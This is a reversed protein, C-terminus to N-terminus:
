YEVQEPFKWTQGFAKVFINGIEDILKRRKGVRNVNVYLPESDGQFRKLVGVPHSAFLEKFDREQHHTSGRLYHELKPKWGGDEIAGFDRIDYSFVRLQGNSYKLLM